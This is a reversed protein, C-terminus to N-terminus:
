QLFLIIFLPASKFVVKLHKIALALQNEVSRKSIGLADAIEQNSLHDLKSMQFITQCRKPLQSLHRYLETKLEQEQIKEDGQNAVSRADEFVTFDTPVLTLKAARQHNYIQYRVARTLFSEFHQIELTQRRTWINLFVDHVIEESLEQNQTYNYAAYFLKKWYRNFLVAFAATDNSRIASWLDVDNFLGPPM